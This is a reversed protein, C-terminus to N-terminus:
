GKKAVTTWGDAIRRDLAPFPLLGSLADCAEVCCAGEAAARRFCTEPACGSLLSALFAAICTDGAGTASVVKEPRYAPQFGKRDAWLSADALLPVGKLAQLNGTQYYLGKAGCKIIVIGVGLATLRAALPAIDKRIDLSDIIERGRARALWEEHLAPDLMQCLEEASPLFCDVTPLVNQLLVSWDIRVSGPSVDMAAMDLSTTLGLAHARTFLRKLPEGRDRCMAPMLPPYGFHLLKAGAMATDPVDTEYFRENAGAHHLFVRDIGPPALVISYSTAADQDRILACDAGSTKILEDVTDGFQDSGVRAILRTPVGLKQLAMGTNAVCGGPHVDAPGVRLLSGPKLLDALRDSTGLAPTIDLCIHGAVVALPIMRDMRKWLVSALKADISFM